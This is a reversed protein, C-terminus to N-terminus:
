SEQQQPLNFPNHQEYMEKRIKEIEAKGIEPNKLLEIDVLMEFLEKNIKKASEREITKFQESIVFDILKELREALKM